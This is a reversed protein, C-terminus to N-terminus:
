AGTLNATQGVKVLVGYVWRYKQKKSNRLPGTKIMSPFLTPECFNPESRELLLPLCPEEIAPTTAATQTTKLHIGNNHQIPNARYSNQELHTSITQRSRMDTDSEFSKPVADDTFSKSSM